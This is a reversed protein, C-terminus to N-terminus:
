KSMEQDVRKLANGYIDNEECVGMQEAEAM